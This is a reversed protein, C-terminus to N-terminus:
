AASGRAETAPVAVVVTAKVYGLFHVLFPGMRKEIIGPHYEIENRGDRDV